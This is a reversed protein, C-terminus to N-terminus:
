AGKALTAPAVSEPAERPAAARLLRDQIAEGLGTGPLPAVAIGASPLSDLTRLCGYLRSAAEALDGTQSLNMAAVPEAGGPEASGFGLYAEGPRLATANLRVGHQPAYHSSLRGPALPKGADTSAAELARGLKAEIAERPIGGPRLLTIVGGLCGVITSEVGIPTAGGDVLAAIRGALDEEVHRANSASVHGSRNASPAAVPRGAAQLIARAVPHDPVRIAVSDLGARALECVPSGARAPVVLTLPGPWFAEALIRAEPPFDGLAFAEETRAVHAILPNFHPRGKAAYLRAIAEPNTADAGLGYVTETPFAVLAGAALLAGARALDEPRDTLVTTQTPSLM